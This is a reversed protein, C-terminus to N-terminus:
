LLVYAAVGALILLVLIDRGRVAPLPWRPPVKVFGHITLREYGAIQKWVFCFGSFMLTALAAIVMGTLTGYFLWGFTSGVLLDTVSDFALVRRFAGLKALFILKAAAACLAIALVTGISIM